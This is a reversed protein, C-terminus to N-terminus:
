IYLSRLLLIFMIIINTIITFYQLLAANSFIAWGSRKAKKAVLMFDSPRSFDMPAGAISVEKLEEKERDDSKEVTETQPVRFQFEVAPQFIREIYLKLNTLMAGRITGFLIKYPLEAFCDELSDYVEIPQQHRRVAYFYNINSDLEDLCNCGFQIHLM